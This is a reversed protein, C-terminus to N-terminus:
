GITAPGTRHLAAAVLEPDTGLDRRGLVLLVADDRSDELELTRTRTGLRRTARVRVRLAPWPVTRSGGVTRVTVGVADTRLRPRLVLDRAVVVLLVGAAVGVLLRGVPDVLVATLALVAAAAAAVATEGSRTSWQM